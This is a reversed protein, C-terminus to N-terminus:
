AFLLANGFEAVSVKVFGGALEEFEVGFEIRDGQL